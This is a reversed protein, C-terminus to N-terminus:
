EARLASIPDVKGARRAPLWSAVLAVAILLATAGALIWPNSLHLGPFGAALVRGVGIAGAFGLLSGALALKVGSRLVLGTLDGVSAGLALRVAFEGTRQAMTRAIIGYIGLSALGLGLVAFSALMDRLVGLQYNARDIRADAEQLDSVPLDPDLETM